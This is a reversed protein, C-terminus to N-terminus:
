TYADLNPATLKMHNNQSEGNGPTEATAGHELNITQQSAGNQHLIQRFLSTIIIDEDPIIIILEGKKGEHSWTIVKKDSHPGGASNISVIVCGPIRTRIKKLVSDWNTTDRGQLRRENRAAAHQPRVPAIQNVLTPPQAAITQQPSSEKAPTSDPLYHKMLEVHGPCVVRIYAGERGEVSTPHKLRYEAWADCGPIDCPVEVGEAIPDFPEESM